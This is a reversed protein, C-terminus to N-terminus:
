RFFTPAWTLAPASFPHGTAYRRGDIETIKLACRM